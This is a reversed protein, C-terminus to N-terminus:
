FARQQESNLLFREISGAILHEDDKSTPNFLHDIYSKDVVDVQNPKFNKSRSAANTPIHRNREEMVMQKQELVAARWAKSPQDVEPRM